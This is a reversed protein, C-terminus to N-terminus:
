VSLSVKKSKLEMLTAKTNSACSKKVRNTERHKKKQRRHRKDTEMERKKKRFELRDREVWEIGRKTGYHKFIVIAITDM